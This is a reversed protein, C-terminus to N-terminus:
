SGQQNAQLCVLRADRRAHLAGVVAWGAWRAASCRLLTPPPSREGGTFPHVSVDLRGKELDFGLVVAVKNCLEAQKDTDYDGKLWADACTPHRIRWVVPTLLPLLPLLLWLPLPLPPLLRM